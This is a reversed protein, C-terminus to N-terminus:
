HEIVWKEDFPLAAARGAEDWEEESLHLQTRMLEEAEDTFRKLEDLMGDLAEVQEDTLDPSNKRFMYWRGLVSTFTSGNLRTNILSQWEKLFNHLQEGRELAVSKTERRDQESQNPRPPQSPPLERM